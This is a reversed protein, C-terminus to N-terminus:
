TVAKAHPDPIERRTTAQQPENRRRQWWRHVALLVFRVITRRRRWKYRVKELYRLRRNAREVHNNTRVREGAPSRLYAIMKDFKAAGLMGLARSLDPDAQFAADNVLAARRCKAQHVSQAPDFLRYVRLVFERLLRLGPLYQFMRSLRRRARGDRNEPRTTILYRNKWIFHAQDKRTPGRKRRDKRRRGRKRKRGGTAAHRRRMRRLADFVRANIDKLVHFVCLQHRAQPWVEPYLNSGDTVVVKPSFGKGRLNKLFRSLHNQDNASVLAFAV